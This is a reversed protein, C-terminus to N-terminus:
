KILQVLTTVENTENNVRNLMLQFWVKEDLVEVNEVGLTVIPLNRDGYWKVIEDKREKESTIHVRENPRIIVHFM